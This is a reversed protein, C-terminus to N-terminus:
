PNGDDQEEKENNCCINDYTEENNQLTLEIYEDHLRKIARECMDYIRRDRRGFSRQQDLYLEMLGDIEKLRKYNKEEEDSYFDIIKENMYDDKLLVKIEDITKQIKDLTEKITKIDDHM